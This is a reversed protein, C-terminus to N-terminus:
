DWNTVRGELQKWIAQSTVGIGREAMGNSKHSYPAILREMINALAKVSAMVENVFETGNDSQIMKPFGVDAFIQYLAQAVSYATKDKLARLFVFRTAVDILLLYFNNGQDSFPMEKLDICVHDFPYMAIMSKPPQYGHRGVNYKQCKICKKVFDQCDRELNSWISGFRSRILRAMGAAGEHFGVHARHMLDNRLEPEEVLELNDLDMNYIGPELGIESAINNVYIEKDVLNALALGV